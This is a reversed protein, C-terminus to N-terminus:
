EDKDDEKEIIMGELYSICKGIENYFALLEFVDLDSLFKTTPLEDKKVELEMEM